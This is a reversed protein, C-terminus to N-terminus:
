PLVLAAESTCSAVVISLSHSMNYRILNETAVVTSSFAFAAALLIAPPWALGVGVFVLLM